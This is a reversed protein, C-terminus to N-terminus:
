ATFPFEHRAKGIEFNLEHRAKGIKLDFVDATKGAHVLTKRCRMWGLISPFALNVESICLVSSSSAWGGGASKVATSFSIAASARSQARRDKALERKSSWKKVLSSLSPSVM